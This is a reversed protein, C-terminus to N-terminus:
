VPVEKKGLTAAVRDGTGKPFKWAAASVFQSLPMLACHAIKSFPLLLMILNGSLLHTLMAFQYGSSSLEVNACLYGTLFPVLLLLPWLYDSRRSLARSRQDFARGFFLFVGSALTLLTLNHACTQPLVVPWAFGVSARFLTVHAAYFLPVLILGIHFLVSLTSYVPRARWLRNVPFLWQLTKLTADRWPVVRDGARKLAIITGTVSLFLVRLLGLIM